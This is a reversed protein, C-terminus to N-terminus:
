TVQFGQMERDRGTTSHSCPAILTLGLDFLTVMFRDIKSFRRKKFRRLILM